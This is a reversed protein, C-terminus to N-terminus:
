DYDDIDELLEHKKKKEAARCLLFSIITSFGIMVLGIVSAYINLDDEFFSPLNEDEKVEQIRCELDNARMMGILMAFVVIIIPM